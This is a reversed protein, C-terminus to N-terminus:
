FCIFFPNSVQRALDAQAADSVNKCASIVGSLLALSVVHGQAKGCHQCPADPKPPDEALCTSRPPRPWTIVTRCFLHMTGYGDDKHTRVYECMLRWCCKSVYADLAWSGSNRFLHLCFNSFTISINYTLGTENVSQRHHWLAANGSRIAIHVYWESCSLGRRLDLIAQEVRSEDTSELFKPGAM